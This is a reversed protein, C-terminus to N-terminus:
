QLYDGSMFGYLKGYDYSEYCVYYWKPTSVSVGIIKVTERNPVLLIITSDDTSGPITRLNLNHGSGVNVVADRCNYDAYYAVERRDSNLDAADVRNPSIASPEIWGYIDLEKCYVYVWNYGEMAGKVTVVDNADLQAIQGRCYGGSESYLAAVDYCIYYDADNYLKEPAFIANEDYADLIRTNGTIEVTDDQEADAENKDDENDKDDDSDVQSSKDSDGKFLEGDSVFWVTAGAIAIVVATIAVILGIVLGNKKPKPAQYGVPYDYNAPQDYSGSQNYPAPEEYSAPQNYSFPEEYSSPKEYYNMDNQHSQQSYTEDYGAPNQGYCGHNVRVTADPDAEAAPQQAYAEGVDAGSQEAYVSNVSVTADPEGNVFAEQAPQEYSNDENGGYSKENNSYTDAAAGVKTGCNGCFLCGNDLESGCHECFM